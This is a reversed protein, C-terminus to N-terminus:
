ASPHTLSLLAEEVLRKQQPTLARSALLNHLERRPLGPLFLVFWVQPTKRNRLMALRLNPRNKWRPHRAIASITEPTGHPGNLFQLLAVEKLRPSALCAEFLRSDAERLLEAVVTSGGRRALTLKSGLECTPLRQIVAREAAVRQDPTIGAAQCLDVLEFLHLQPLLALLLPGPTAPHRALAVKLRHSRKSQDLQAVTKLLDEPLDRRKLLALLHDESLRPNKLAARLVARVPSQLPTFLEEAGATLAQQLERLTAPNLEEPLRDDQM